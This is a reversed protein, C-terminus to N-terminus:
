SLEGARELFALAEPLKEILDGAIGGGTETMALDGARAHLFVGGRAADAASLGRALLAGLIGALADGSGGTAMGPNGALANVSFRIGHTHEPHAIITRAGQSHSDSAM